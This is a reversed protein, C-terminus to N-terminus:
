EAVNGLAIVYALPTSKSPQFRARQEFAPNAPKFVPPEIPPKM